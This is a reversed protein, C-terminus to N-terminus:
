NKQFFKGFQQRWSQFRVTELPKLDTLGIPWGMLWETWDPSLAGHKQSVSASLNIQKGIKLRRQTVPLGLHGRNRHDSAQPTPFVTIHLVAHDLRDNARSKGNQRTLSKMSTGKSMCSTPTPWKAGGGRYKAMVWIRKRVHPAHLNDGGLVGWRADYGMSALDGLVVGLGRSTLMPSNEVFVIKSGVQLIVRAMEKWLGSAEGEIGAGKGAVSIDTCPFGGCVADVKGRWESADFERIDGYIPFSPLIGDAQRQKLIQRCYPEIEVACVTTHGLLLGGLIGGGAGAFLHLERM